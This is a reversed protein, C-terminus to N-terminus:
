FDKFIDKMVSKMGLFKKRCHDISSETQIPIPRKITASSNMM